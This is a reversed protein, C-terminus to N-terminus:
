PWSRSNRIMMWTPGRRSCRPFWRKMPAHRWPGDACAVRPMWSWWSDSPAGVLEAPPNSLAVLELRNDGDLDALVKGFHSGGPAVPWGAGLPVGAADFGLIQGAGGTDVFVESRGDNDIDGVVPADFEPAGAPLDRVWRTRGDGDLVLLRPLRGGPEGHDVLVIERTGDTPDAVNFERWTAEPARCSSSGAV